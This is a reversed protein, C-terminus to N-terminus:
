SIESRNWDRPIKPLGILVDLDLHEKLLAKLNRADILEMRGSRTAFDISAKGFWSTTVVIGKPANLDHMTGLLARVSEVGVSDKYRKAQIVCVGGFLPTENRAVADVGDDRSAQTTWAEFGMAEFLRRVLHEFENPKMDLLNLRGDLTGLVDMEEITKYRSIDWKIVPTVEELDYPHQSILANLRRLCQAPELEPEDLALDEFAAREVQVNLIVSHVANGTAPDKSHVYGYLAITDVLAPPSVAFAYDLTRLAFRATLDGYVKAKDADKRLDAVVERATAVYRYGAEQPVVTRRPLDIQLGLERREPAYALTLSDTGGDQYNLLEFLIPTLADVVGDAGDVAFGAEVALRHHHLGRERDVLLRGFAEVLGRVADTKSKAEAKLREVEALKAARAAQVAAREQASKARAADQERQRDRREFDKVAKAVARAREAEERRERAAEASQAKKAAAAQERHERDAIRKAETEARKREAAELKLRQQYAQIMKDAISKKKRQAVHGGVSCYRRDGGVRASRGSTTAAIVSLAPYLASVVQRVGPASAPM